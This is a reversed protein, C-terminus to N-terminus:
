TSGYSPGSACSFGTAPIDATSSSILVAPVSSASSLPDLRLEAVMLEASRQQGRNFFRLALHPLDLNHRHEGRRNKKRTSSTSCNSRNARTGSQGIEVSFVGGYKFHPVNVRPSQRKNTRQVFPRQFLLGHRHPHFFRLPNSPVHMPPAPDPTKVVSQCKSVSVTKV